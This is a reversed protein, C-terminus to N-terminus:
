AGPGGKRRGGAALRRAAFSASAALRAHGAVEGEMGGLTRYYALQGRALDTLRPDDGLFVKRHVAKGGSRDVFRVAWERRGSGTVRPVLAGQTMLMEANEALKGRIVGWRRALVPDGEPAADDTTM